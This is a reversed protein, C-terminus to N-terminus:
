GSPHKGKSSSRCPLRIIFETGQGARSLIALEGSHGEVIKKVIPMGLGTGKSKKTYFPVFVNELVEKDMGVGNDKVRMVFDDGKKEASITVDQGASSAEIANAVLNTLAREMHHGDMAIKMPVAPVRVSLTVSSEEAKVKCSVFVKNIIVRLDEETFEMQLPRAFDLTNEVIKQMSQASDWIAHAAKDISGKGEQIRKTFALIAILPNKLDHVITTAVLGIGALYRDKEQRDRFKRQRDLLIGAVLAFIGSFLLHLLRDILDLPTSAWNGFLFPLYCASVFIYTLIMGKLRYVLAGLLLPIYYLEELVIRPFLEQLMWHHLYTISLSIGVIIITCIRETSVSTVEATLVFVTFSTL